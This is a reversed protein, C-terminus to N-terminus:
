DEDDALDKEGKARRNYNKIADKITDEALNVCYQKNEPLQGGLEKLIDKASIQNAEQLTKGIIMRTAVSSAAISATCGFTQFKADVIKNGEVSIYIKFTERQAQSVIKGKASAGKIVGVNQPNYFENLVEESYMM